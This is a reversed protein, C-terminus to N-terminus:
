LYNINLVVRRQKDTCNTGLHRLHGDFLVMRNAVSEIKTGDEFLTYGNNTNLYFIAVRHDYSYDQHFDGQIINETRTTLNVKARLLARIKLKKIIPKIHHFYDSTPCFDRYLGHVFQFPKKEEHSFQQYKGDRIPNFQWYLKPDDLFKNQIIKFEFDSLFNDIVEIM